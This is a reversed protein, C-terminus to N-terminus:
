PKPDLNPGAALDWPESTDIRSSSANSRAISGLVKLGLGLREVRLGLGWGRDRLSRFGLGWGKIGVEFCSVTFM